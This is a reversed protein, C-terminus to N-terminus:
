LARHGLMIYVACFLGLDGPGLFIANRNVGDCEAVFGVLGQHLLDGHFAVASMPVCWGAVVQNLREALDRVIAGGQQSLSDGLAFAFAGGSVRAIM